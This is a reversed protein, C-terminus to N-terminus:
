RDAESLRACSEICDALVKQTDRLYVAIDHPHVAGLAHGVCGELRNLELDLEDRLAKLRDTKRNM